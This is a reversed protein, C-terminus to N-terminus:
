QKAAIFISYIGLVIGIGVIILLHDMFIDQWYTGIAVGISLLSLKLLGMQWWSYTYNKLIKM